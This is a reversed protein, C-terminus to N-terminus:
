YNTYVVLTGTYVIYILQKIYMHLEIATLIHFTNGYRFTELIIM